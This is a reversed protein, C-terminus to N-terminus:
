RRHRRSGGRAVDVSASVEVDPRSSDPYSNTVSLKFTGHEMPLSLSGTARRIDTFPTQAQLRAKGVAVEVGVAGELREGKQTFTAGVSTAFDDQKVGLRLGGSLEPRHRPTDFRAGFRGVASFGFDNDDPSMGLLAEMRRVAEANGSVNGAFGKGAGGVAWDHLRGETRDLRAAGLLRSGETIPVELQIDKSDRGVPAPASRGAAHASDKRRGDAGKTVPPEKPLPPLTLKYNDPLPPLNLDAGPIGSAAAPRGAPAAPAPEEKKAEGGLAPGVLTAFSLFGARLTQHM